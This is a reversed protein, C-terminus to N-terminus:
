YTLMATCILNLSHPFRVIEEWVATVNRYDKPEEPVIEGDVIWMQQGPGPIQGGNEYYEPLAEM